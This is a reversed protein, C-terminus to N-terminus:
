TKIKRKKIRTESEKIPKNHNTRYSFLFIAAKRKKLFDEFNLDYIFSNGYASRQSTTIKELLNVISVLLKKTVYM